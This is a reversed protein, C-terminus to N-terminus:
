CSEHKQWPRNCVPPTPANALYMAKASRAANYSDLDVQTPDCTHPTFMTPPGFSRGFAFNVVFDCSSNVCTAKYRRYDSSLVQFARGNVENYEIVATVVDDKSAYSRSSFFSDVIEEEDSSSSHPSWDSNEAGCRMSVYDVDPMDEGSSANM